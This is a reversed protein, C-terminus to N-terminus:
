AAEVPAGNADWGNGRIARADDAAKRERWSDSTAIKWRGPCAECRTGYRRGHACFWDAESM